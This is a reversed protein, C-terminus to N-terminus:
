FAKLIEMQKVFTEEKRQISMLFTKKKKQGHSIYDVVDLRKLSQKQLFYVAHSERESFISVLFM